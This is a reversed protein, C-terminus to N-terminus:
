NLRFTAYFLNHDSVTDPVDVKGKDTVLMYTPALINDIQGPVFPFAPQLGLDTLPKLDGKYVGYEDYNTNFDGTIVKYYNKDAKFINALEKAHQKVYDPGMSSFHTNYISINKGCANIISKVYGCIGGDELKSFKDKETKTLAYHSVIANGAWGNGWSLDINKVTSVYDYVGSIKSTDTPLDWFEAYEQVGVAAAGARMAIHMAEKVATANQKVYKNVNFTGITVSRNAEDEAIQAKFANKEATTAM